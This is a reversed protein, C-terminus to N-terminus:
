AKVDTGVGENEPIGSLRHGSASPAAATVTSPFPTPAAASSDAGQASADNSRLEKVREQHDAPTDSPSLMSAVDSPADNRPRLQAALHPPILQAILEPPSALIEEPTFQFNSIHIPSGDTNAAGPSRLENFFPHICAKV